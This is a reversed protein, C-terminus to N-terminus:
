KKLEESLVSEAEKKSKFIQKHFHFGNDDSYGIPAKMILICALVSSIIAAISCIIIIKGM